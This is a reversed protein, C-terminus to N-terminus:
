EAAMALVAKSGRRCLILWAADGILYGSCRYGAVLKSRVSGLRDYYNEALGPAIRRMVAAGERCTMGAVESIDLGPLSVSDVGGAVHCVRGHVDPVQALLPDPQKSGATAPQRSRDGDNGCAVV